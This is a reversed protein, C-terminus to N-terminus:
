SKGLLGKLRALLGKPQQAQQQEDEQEEIEAYGFTVDVIPKIGDNRPDDACAKLDEETMKELEIPHVNRFQLICIRDGEKLPHRGKIRHFNVYVGRASIDEVWYANGTPAACIKAHRRSVAKNDFQINAEAARGLVNERQLRYYRTKDLNDHLQAVKAM